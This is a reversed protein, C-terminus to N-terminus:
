GSTCAACAMMCPSPNLPPAHRHPPCAGRSCAGGRSSSPGQSLGQLSWSAPHSSRPRSPLPGVALSSGISRSSSSGSNSSSFSAQALPRSAAPRRSGLRHDVRGLSSSSSSRRAGRLPLCMTPNPGTLASALVPLSGLGQSGTASRPPVRPWLQPAAGSSAASSGQLSYDSPM